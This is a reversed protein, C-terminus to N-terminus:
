KMVALAAEAKAKATAMDGKACAAEAEKVLNFAKSSTAKSGALSRPAQVDQGRPAQVDQGRPAQVDQGRPAQVDQGRPAENASARAGALSRPASVADAKASRTNLQEKAKAVEPPCQTQAEVTATAFTAIAFSSMLM